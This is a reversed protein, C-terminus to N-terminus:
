RFHGPRCSRDPSDSTSPSDEYIWLEGTFKTSHFDSRYMGAPRRYKGCWAHVLEHGLLYVARGKIKDEETLAGEDIGNLSSEHHELGMGPIKDSVVVLFDYSSFPASGFLAYAESMLKRYGDALQDDFKLAKASESVFHYRTDPFEPVQVDLQRYNRGAILPSDVLTEVTTRRFKFTNDAVPQPDRLATAFEFDAPLKVRVDVPFERIDEGEPYVICTNMNIALADANGFSDVGTSVRTPQNALYILEIRIHDTSKPVDVTFRTLQAPDRQWELKNGSADFVNLGGINRIQESPGHIGPIWEPHRFSFEGPTTPITITSRLLHRAIQTTDVDVRMVPEARAVTALISILALSLLTPISQHQM